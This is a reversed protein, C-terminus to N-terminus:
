LLKKKHLDDDWELAEGSFNFKLYCFLFFNFVEVGAWGSNSIFMYLIVLATGDNGTMFHYLFFFENSGYEPKSKVQRLNMVSDFM